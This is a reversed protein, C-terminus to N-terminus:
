DLHKIKAFNAMIKKTGVKEFAVELMTDNSMPTANLVMGEGFINHKVRDGVKFSAGSNQQSYSRSAIVSGHELQRRLTTGRFDDQRRDSNGYPSVYGKESDFVVNESPLESLFRSKKNFNPKGFLMRSEACTLYLQEKARTIAVYAIRREEELEAQTDICRASPFINEEMGAAFVVPFELGKAAHMSMLLVCDSQEDINDADTYLSIEELFGSLTPEEANESYNVMTTKLENINELRSLGEEGLTRMYSEYGSKLLLEDLLEDLPLMEAAETLEDFMQAVSMLLSSKKALPALTASQRMVEVPSMSLDSSIQEIVNVTAEGIKRKPENIIRKLRLMDHNNNIVALYSLVDKIEKRDYFKVGSIVKYPIGCSTLAQELSNSLANMRYLVAHSSYLKGNKVNELITEAIFRAESRENQARYVNVKAGDGSDTWLNKGKRGENNKILVNACTLINQTSRYNQELRIVVSDPYEQEFNLINEITAGRFRYISQDDDGVVCLNRFKSALMSVLKYQATNTDQYEDVLIYRFRNQYHDLVDPFKEFLMVTNYIIDDFDMANADKLKQQYLKYVRAITLAKYDGNVDAFYGEPSTMSDKSRSIESLIARPAFMKESVDLEKMCGKILRLSDDSDYITFSSSYGLNECERRLIRVCASHFTAAVVGEASDGLMASIREKLEGAAKNTFTIALINWPNVCDFAVVDRLRKNDNYIGNAYGKLFELEEATVNLETEDLYANGFYIMNAIRNVLVTTKGSGAGALVLLPGNIQFVAKKQMDNMRSFYRELAKRKLETFKTM